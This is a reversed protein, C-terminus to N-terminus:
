KIRDGVYIMFDSTGVYFDGLTLYHDAFLRVCRSKDLCDIRWDVRDVKDGDRMTKEYDLGFGGIGNIHIVDSGGGLVGVITDRNVLIYKMSRWGSPHIENTPVIVVGNFKEKPVYNEMELFEKKTYLSLDKQM